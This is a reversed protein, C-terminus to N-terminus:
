VLRRSAIAALTILLVALARADLTPVPASAVVVAQSLNGTGNASTLTVSVTFLGVSNFVHPLTWPALGSSDPFQWDYTTAPCTIQHDGVSFQITEGLYCPRGNSETCGSTQGRFIIAFPTLPPTPTCIPPLGTAVIRDAQAAGGTLAIVILVARLTNKM